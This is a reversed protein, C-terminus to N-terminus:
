EDKLKYYIKVVYPYAAANGYDKVFGKVTANEDLPQMVILPEAKKSSDKVTLMQNITQGSGANFVVSVNALAKTHHHTNASMFVGSCYKAKAPLKDTFRVIQGSATVSVSTFHFFIM